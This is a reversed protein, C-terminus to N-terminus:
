AGLEKLGFRVLDLVDLSELEEPPFWRALDTTGDSEPVLPSKEDEITARHVLRIAHVDGPSERAQLHQSDVGLLGELRVSLGTEECVERVM